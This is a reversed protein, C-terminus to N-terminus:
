DELVDDDDDESEMDKAAQWLRILQKIKKEPDTSLDNFMAPHKQLALLAIYQKEDLEVKEGTVYVIKKIINDEKETTEDIYGAAKMIEEYPVKLAESLKKITTPKPTGRKRNEIRSISASSVGSYIALQNVTLGKFERIERLYKGFNNM